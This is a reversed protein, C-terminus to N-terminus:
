RNEVNQQRDDVLLFEILVALRLRYQNRDNLCFDTFFILLFMAAYDAVVETAIFLRDLRPDVELLGRFRKLVLAFLGNYIPSALAVVLIPVVPFEFGLARGVLVGAIMLPAVAWRLRIQWFGQRGWLQPLGERGATLQPSIEALDRIPEDAM